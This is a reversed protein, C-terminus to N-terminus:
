AWLGFIMGGGASGLGASGVGLAQGFRGRERLADAWTACTKPVRLGRILYALLGRTDVEYSIVHAVVDRVRWCACLTPVQWQQPSLTALFAAFDAREEQTLRRVDVVPLSAM